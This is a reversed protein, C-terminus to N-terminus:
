RHSADPGERCFAHVKMKQLVAGTVRSEMDKLFKCGDAGVCVQCIIAPHDAMPSSSIDRENCLMDFKTLAGILPEKGYMRHYKLECIGEAGGHEKDEEWFLCNHCMPDIKTGVRFAIESM